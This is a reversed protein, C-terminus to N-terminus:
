NAMMFKHNKGQKNSNAQNNLIELYVEYGDKEIRILM